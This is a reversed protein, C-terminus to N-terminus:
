CSRTKLYGFYHILFIFSSHCYCFTLFHQNIGTKISSTQCINQSKVM